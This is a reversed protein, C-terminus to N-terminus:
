YQPLNVQEPTYSLYISSMSILILLEGLERQLACSPPYGVAGRHQSTFHTVNVLSAGTKNQKSYVHKGRYVFGGLMQTGSSTSMKSPPIPLLIQWFLSGRSIQEEFGPNNLGLHTLLLPAVQLPAGLDLTYCSAGSKVPSSLLPDQSAEQLASGPPSQPLLAPRQLHSGPSSPDHSGGTGVQARSRWGRAQSNNDHM